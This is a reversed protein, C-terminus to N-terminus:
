VNGGGSRPQQRQCPWAQKLVSSVYADAAQHRLDPIAVLAQRVMDRVQGATVSAPSCHTVGRMADHVGMVYGLGMLQMSTDRHDLRELLDNGSLFEAQASASALALVLAAAKM